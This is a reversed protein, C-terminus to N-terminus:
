DGLSVLGLDEQGELAQVRVGGRAFPHAQGDHAADHLAMVALDPEFRRVTLPGGEEEGQRGPRGGRGFHGPADAPGAEVKGPRGTAGSSKESLGEQLRGIMRSLLGTPAWGECRHSYWWADM